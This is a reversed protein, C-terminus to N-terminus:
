LNRWDLFLANASPTCYYPRTYTFAVTNSDYFGGSGTSNPLLLTSNYAASLPALAVLALAAALLMRMTDRM